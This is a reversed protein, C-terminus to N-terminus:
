QHPQIQHHKMGVHDDRLHVLHTTLLIIVPVVILVHLKLGDVTIVLLKENQKQHKMGDIVVHQSKMVLHKVMDQHQQMILQHQMGFEQVQRQELHRVVKIVLLKMGVIIELLKRFVFM